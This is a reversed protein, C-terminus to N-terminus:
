VGIQRCHISCCSRWVIPQKSRRSLSRCDLSPYLFRPSKLTLLCVRKIAEADDEAEDLQSDIYLKRTQTM